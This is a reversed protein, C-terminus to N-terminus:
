GPLSVGSAATWTAVPFADRHAGAAAVTAVAGAVPAYAHMTWGPPDVPVDRLPRVLGLGLAKLYAEKATWARLFSELRQAPPTAEWHRLEADSLVRSALRELGARPRRVEVDIGVERLDSVALVAVDGSHSLSFSPGDVTPKGHDPHGCHRCRRDFRVAEPETGLMAGLVERVAGHAVVYRSRADTRSRAAAALREHDDLTAALADAASRPQALAITWLSVSV